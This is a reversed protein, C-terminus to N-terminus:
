EKSNNKNAEIMIDVQQLSKESFQIKAIEDKIGEVSSFAGLMGPNKLLKSAGLVTTSIEKAKDPAFKLGWLDHKLKAIHRKLKKREQELIQYEATMLRRREDGNEDDLKQIIVESEGTTVETVGTKSEENVIDENLSVDSVSSQTSPWFLRLSFIILIVIVLGVMAKM